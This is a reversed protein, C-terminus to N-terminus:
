KEVRITCFKCLKKDDKDCVDCNGFTDECDIHKGSYQCTDYRVNKCDLCTTFEETNISTQYTTWCQYCCLKNCCDCKLLGNPINATMKLKECYYCVGSIGYANHALNTTLHRKFDRLSQLEANQEDLRQIVNDIIYKEFLRGGM